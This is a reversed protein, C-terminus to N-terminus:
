WWWNKIRFSGRKGGLKQYKGKAKFDSWTTKRFISFMWFLALFALISGIITM